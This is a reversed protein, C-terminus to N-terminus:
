DQPPDLAALGCIRQDEELPNEASPVRVGGYRRWPVFGTPVVTKRWLRAYLEGGVVIARTLLASVPGSLVASGHREHGAFGGTLRPSLRPQSPVTDPRKARLIKTGEARARALLFVTVHTPTAASRM